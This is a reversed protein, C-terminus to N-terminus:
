VYYSVITSKSGYNKNGIGDKTM